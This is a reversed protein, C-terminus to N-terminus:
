TLDYRIPLHKPGAVCLTEFYQAEGALFEASWGIQFWGSPRWTFRVEM